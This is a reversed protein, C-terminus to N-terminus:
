PAVGYSMAPRFTLIEVTMRNILQKVKEPLPEQGELVATVNACPRLRLYRPSPGGAIMRFWLTEAAPKAEALPPAQVAAQAPDPAATLCVGIVFLALLNSVAKM